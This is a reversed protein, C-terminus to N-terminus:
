KVRKRARRESIVYDSYEQIYAATEAFEDGSDPDDHALFDRHEGTSPSAILGRVYGALRLVDIYEPSSLMTRMSGTTEYRYRTNENVIYSSVRKCLFSRFVLSMSHMTSMGLATYSVGFDEGSVYARFAELEEERKIWRCLAPSFIVRQHKGLYNLPEQPAFPNQMSRARLAYQQEGILREFVWNLRDLDRQGVTVTRGDEAVSQFRAGPPYLALASCLKLAAGQAALALKNKQKMMKLNFRYYKALDRRIAIGRCRKYEEVNDYDQRKVSEGPTIFLMYNIRAEGDATKYVPLQSTGTEWAITDECRSLEQSVINKSRQCLDLANVDQARQARVRAEESSSPYARIDGLPYLSDELTPLHTPLHTPLSDISERRLPPSSSSPLSLPADM